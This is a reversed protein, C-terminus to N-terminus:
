WGYFVALLGALGVLCLAGVQSPTHDISTGFLALMMVVLLSAGLLLPAKMADRGRIDILDPACRAVRMPGPRAVTGAPTLPPGSGRIGWDLFRVAQRCHLTMTESVFCELFDYTDLHHFNSRIFSARLRSM